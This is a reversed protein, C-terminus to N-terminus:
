NTVSLQAAPSSVGGTIVVVPQTGIGITSPVQFNIQTVGVLGVPIGVFESAAAVGGVTVTVSQSPRPLNAIATGSAPAAGTAIAPTVSGAGTIFLTIIQGRTASGTPVILGNQSNFFVGPAAASVNFTKSTVQGNNNISLTATGAPTEYPIQINLQGSSVYYLPAAVSNVTAAVGAMSIPLPVSSASSASPALQSGFVSLIAGPSVAQAFSAGNAVGTITPTGVSASAPKVSLTISASASSSGSQAYVATVTASGVAFQTGSM